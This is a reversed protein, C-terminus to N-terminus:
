SSEISDDDEGRCKFLRKRLHSDQLADLTWKTVAGWEKPKSQEMLESSHKSHCHPMKAESMWFDEFKADLVVSRSPHMKQYCFCRSLRWQFAFHGKFSPITTSIILGLRETVAPCARQSTEDKKEEVEGGM